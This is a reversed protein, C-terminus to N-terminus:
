DRETNTNINHQNYALRCLFVVISLLYLIVILIGAHCLLRNLSHAASLPTARVVKAPLM